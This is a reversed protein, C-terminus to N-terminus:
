GQLVVKLGRSTSIGTASASCGHGPLPLWMSQVFVELGVVDVRDPVPAVLRAAGHVDSFMVQSFLLGFEVHMLFGLGFADVGALNAPGGLLLMGLSSPPANTVSWAFQDNGIQPSGSALMGIAGLCDPTGTGYPALGHPVLTPNRLLVLFNGGSIYSVDVQGDGDFDAAVLAGCDAADVTVTELPTFAGAGDGYAAYVVNGAAILLDTAGDHDLDAAALGGVADPVAISAGATFAGAGNGILMELRTAPDGVAVFDIRGDGNADLAVLQEGLHPVDSLVAPAFTGAGTNRLVAIQRGDNAIVALDLRGDGTCDVLQLARPALPVPLVIEAGFGGSGNGPLVLVEDRQAGAVVLDPLGDGTVEALALDRCPQSLTVTGIVLLGGHGDNHRVTVRNQLQCGDVVDVVRDGDLDATAVAAVPALALYTSSASLLGAGTGLLVSVSGAYRNTTIADPLGNRDLDAFQLRVAGAAGIAFRQPPAFSLRPTLPAPANGGGGSCGAHVLVLLPVLRRLQRPM